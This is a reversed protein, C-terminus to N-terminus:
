KNNRWYPIRVYKSLMLWASGWELDLYPIYSKSEYDLLDRVSKFKISIYDQNSFYSFTKDKHRIVTIAHGADNDKYFIGIIYAKYGLEKLVYRSLLAFDECDGNMDKVMEKPYKWHDGELEVQFTFDNKFWASLTAPDKVSSPFLLVGALMISAFQKKFKKM